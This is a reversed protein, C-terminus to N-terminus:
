GGASLASCAPSPTCCIDHNGMLLTQCERSGHGAPSNAVLPSFGQHIPKMLTIVLHPLVMKALSGFLSTPVSHGGNCQGMLFVGVQWHLGPPSGASLTDGALRCM